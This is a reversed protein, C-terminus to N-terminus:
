NKKATLIIMTTYRGNEMTLSSLRTNTGWESVCVCVCIHVLERQKTDITQCAVEIVQFIFSRRYFHCLNRIRNTPSTPQNQLSHLTRSFGCVSTWRFKCKVTNIPLSALLSLHCRLKPQRELGLLWFLRRSNGHLSTGFREIMQGPSLSNVAARVVLLAKFHLCFALFYTEFSSTQTFNPLRSLGHWWRVVPKRSGLFCSSIPKRDPVFHHARTLNATELKIGKSVNKIM